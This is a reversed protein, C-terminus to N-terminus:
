TFSSGSGEPVIPGCEQLKQCSTFDKEDKRMNAGPEGSFPFVDPPPKGAGPKGVSREM